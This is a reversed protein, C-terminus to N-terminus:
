DKALRGQWTALGAADRHHRCLRVGCRAIAQAVEEDAGHEAARTDFLASLKTLATAPDAYGVCELAYARNLTVRPHTASATRRFYEVLREFEVGAAPWRELDCLVYALNNVSNAYDPHDEGLAGRCIRVSERAMAVAEDGKGNPGLVTSLNLCADAVTSHPDPLASRLNAVAARLIPEAEQKQGLAALLFGLNNKALGINPHDPALVREFVEVCHRYSALAGAEDGRARQIKALNVTLIALDEEAEPYAARLEAIASRAHKEAAEFRKARILAVALSGHTRVFERAEVGEHQRLEEEMALAERLLALAEDHGGLSSRVSGLLRLSRAVDAHGDPHQERYMRLGVAFHEAAAEYRGQGRYTLGILLRTAAEVDPQDPFAGGIEQSAADLMEAVTTERTVTVLGFPDAAGLMRELYKNQALARAATEEADTKAAVAEAQKDLAELLGFGTGFAGLVLILFAAVLTKHRRVFKRARYAASPPGAVLPEHALFRRLDNALEAVSQYRREPEKAMAAQVIWDLERSVGAAVQSPRPPEQEVIRRALASFSEDVPWPPRGTLVQFLVAGIAHVDTRVDIADRDGEIQEPAMYPLTGILKGQTTLHVEDGETARAIGFDIVKVRSEASVLLNDPKLDRHVVGRLHGHSIADCVQLILQLRQPWSPHEAAVFRDLPRAGPVFEMAFWPLGGAGEELVGAALVQAIGPHSLRALLRSEEGFRRADVGAGLGARMTKLAVTRQPQLQRAEFVVGMGGSGLVRVLEFDGVRDGPGLGIARQEGTAEAAVLTAAGPTRLFEPDSEHGALMRELERQLEADEPFAAAVYAARDAGSLDM